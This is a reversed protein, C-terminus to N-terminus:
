KKIVKELHVIAGDNNKLQLLYIGPALESIDLKNSGSNLVVRGDIATMSASLKAAAQINLIGSSPNPYVSIILNNGAGAVSTSVISFEYAGIDPTSNSRTANIIDSTIGVAAGTNDLASNQPILNGSQLNTYQPDVQVSNQEGQVISQWNSLAPYINGAIYGVQANIVIDEDFFYDNNNFSGSMNNEFHLARKKGTGTGDISVINNKFDLNHAANVDQYLGFVGCGDCFSNEYELSITNHFINLYDAGQVKIGYQSGKTKFDYVLNNSIVNENGATATAGRLSIAASYINSNEDAGAPEHIKNANIVTNTHYPNLHIGHFNSINSRGPRSIDNREILAGDNHAAYIGYSYFDVVTNGLIQNAENKNNEDDGVLCIGYFGGKVTNGSVENMDCDGNGGGTAGANYGNIVIGAYSDATDSGTTTNVEVDCGNIINNDANNMLQIGLGYEFGAAGNVVVKLNNINIYKAGDLKITARETSSDSIHILSAGNGNFTVTSNASTGAIETIIVQENYPGSGPAVDIVIAGQIGCQMANVADAFSQFNNGGTVQANNITYSGAALGDAVDIEIPSSYASSDGCQVLARYWTNNNPATLGIIPLPLPVSYTSWPGNSSPAMEWTFTTQGAVFTNGTLNLSFSTGRCIDAPADTTTTGANIPGACGPADFSIMTNPRSNYITFYSASTVPDNYTMYREGMGTGIQWEIYDSTPMGSGSTVQYDVYLELEEGTYLFNLNEFGTWGIGGINSGTMYQVSAVQVFGSSTHGQVNFPGTGYGYSPYTITDTRIYLNVTAIRGAEFTDPTTKYWKIEQIISGPVIGIAALEAEKFCMVSVSPENGHAKFVGRDWSSTTGTGIIGTTATSRSGACMLLAFLFALLHTPKMLKTKISFSYAKKTEKKRAFRERINVIHYGAAFIYATFSM